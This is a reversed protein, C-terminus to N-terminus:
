EKQPMQKITGVENPIPSYLYCFFPSLDIIKKVGKNEYAKMCLSKMAQLVGEMIVFSIRLSVEKKGSVALIEPTGPPSGSFFRGPV